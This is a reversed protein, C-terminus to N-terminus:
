PNTGTGGQTNDGTDDGAAAQAAKEAAVEVFTLKYAEQNLKKADM